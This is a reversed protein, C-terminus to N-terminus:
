VPIHNAAPASDDSLMSYRGNRGGVPRCRCPAGSPASKRQKRMSAGIRRAPDRVSALPRIVSLGMAPRDAGRPGAILAWSRKKVAPRGTGGGTPSKSLPARSLAKKRAKLEGRLFPGPPQLDSSGSLLSSVCIRPHGWPDAGVLSGRFRNVFLLRVNGPSLLDSM